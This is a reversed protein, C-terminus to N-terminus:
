PFSLFLSISSIFLCPSSFLLFAFLYPSSCEHNRCPSAYSDPFPSSLVPLSFVVLVLIHINCCHYAFHYQCPLKKKFLSLDLSILLSFFLYILTTLPHLSMSFYTSEQSFSSCFLQYFYFFIIVLILFNCCPYAFHYRRTLSILFLIDLPPSSVLLLCNNHPSSSFLSFFLLM